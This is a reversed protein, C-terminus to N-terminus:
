LKLLVDEDIIIESKEFIFYDIDLKGLMIVLIKDGVLCFM